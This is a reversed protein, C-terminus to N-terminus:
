QVELSTQLAEVSDGEVYNFRLQMSQQSTVRFTKDLPLVLHQNAWTIARENAEDIALVNQTVLRVANLYGGQHVTVSREFSFKQPIEHAYGINAYPVLESLEITRPQIATPSQFMPVPAEFGEFDFSQEILQVMLITAEPIFLPLPSQPFRRQYNRKFAAIVSAQRERLLGVHLMECIVVDIPEDPVFQTADAQVVAVSDQLGNHRVFRRATAVLEPNREVCTVQAGRRAAFSSLIGTGGGLETVKMAPRIIWEIARRFAIVREHDQLMNYHYLLPIYQGLTQQDTRLGAPRDTQPTKAADISTSM